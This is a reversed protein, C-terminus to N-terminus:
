DIRRREVFYGYLTTLLSVGIMTVFWNLVVNYVLSVVGGTTGDIMGPIEILLRGGMVIVALQVLATTDRKTADWSERLKLSQGLAAAPLVLGLRFFVYSCLGVLGFVVMGTLAPVQAALGLALGGIVSAIAILLLGILLSRGFYSLMESGHWRPVFGPPTEGTLVFRHWGVAIWLSSVVAFLSLLFMEGAGAPTQQMPDGGGPSTFLFVTFVVQVLYLLLSLRLAVGLNDLVMRVSHLFMKWGM